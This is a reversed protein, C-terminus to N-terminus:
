RMRNQVILPFHFRDTPHVQIIETQLRIITATSSFLRGKTTM